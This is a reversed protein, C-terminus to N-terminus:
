HSRAFMATWFCIPWGILLILMNIPARVSAGARRGAVIWFCAAAIALLWALAPWKFLSWYEAALAWGSVRPGAGIPGEIAAAPAGSAMRVLASGAAIPVTTLIFVAYAVWDGAVPIWVAILIAIVLWGAWRV